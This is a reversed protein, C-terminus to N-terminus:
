GYTFLLEPGKPEHLVPRFLSADFREPRHDRGKEKGPLGGLQSSTRGVPLFEDYKLRLPHQDDM